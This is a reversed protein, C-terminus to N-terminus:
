LDNIHKHLTEIFYEITYISKDLKSLYKHAKEININTLQSENYYLPYEDGLIEVVGECKNIYIPTNRVIAELIVNCAAVDILNIFIINSSLLLDYEKNELFSIYNVSSILKNIDEIIKQDDVYLINNNYLLNTTNYKNKIWEIMHQIIRPIKLPEGRCPAFRMLKTNENSNMKKDLLLKIEFNDPIKCDNMDKGILINKELTTELTYITFLNRLWAGIQIIKKNKNNNYNRMTFYNYPNDIPHVLTKVPVNINLEKLKIELKNTLHKSLTFLAVCTTLSQLFYKNNFLEVNNYKSYSENFTHHIFGCWPITYPICGLYYYYNNCWHFTRDVYMDCYVGNLSMLEAIKEIALYWGGRHTNKYIQYESIKLTLPLINKNNIIIKENTQNFIYELADKIIEKIAHPIKLIKNMIGWNYISDPYGLAKRSILRPITEYDTINKEAYLLTHDIDKHQLIINQIQEHDLLFKCKNVINNIKNKIIHKDGSINKYINIIDDLKADIPTKNKDLIIKYQYKQMDAFRMLSKTKKTSSISIFPVDCLMCLIHAHYRMCIGFELDSIKDMMEDPTYNTDDLKIKEPDNLRDYVAKSIIYDNPDFLYFIIDYDASVIKIFDILTDLINTFYIINDVLFVGCVKRKNVKIKRDLLYAFDPLFHAKESGIITQLNRLEEYNRTFIHDFMQLNESRIMSKFPFGLSIGLKIGKYESVITKYKDVFYTNILDGGGLMIGDFKNIELDGTLDDICLFTLNYPFYKKFVIKYIEDGLNHRDYFGLVLFKDCM